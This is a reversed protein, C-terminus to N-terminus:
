AGISRQQSSAQVPIRRPKMSEAVPISIDLIGDRMQCNVKELDLGTPAAELEPEAGPAPALFPVQEPEPQTPEPPLEAVLAIPAPEEGEADAAPVASASEALAQTLEPGPAPPAGTELRPLLAAGSADLRPLAAAAVPAGTAAIPSPAPAPTGGPQPGGTRVEAPESPLGLRERLEALRAREQETLGDTSRKESLSRLERIAARTDSVTEVLTGPLRPIAFGLLAQTVITNFGPRLGGGPRGVGVQAKHGVRRHALFPCDARCRGKGV